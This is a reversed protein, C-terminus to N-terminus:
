RVTLDALLKGRRRTRTDQTKTAELQRVRERRRFLVFTDFAARAGAQAELAASLDAPLETVRPEGSATVQVTPNKKPGFATMVQITMGM